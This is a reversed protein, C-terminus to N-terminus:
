GDRVVLGKVLAARELADCAPAVADETVWFGAGTRLGGGGLITRSAYAEAEVSYTVGAADLVAEVRGAEELTAALYVRTLETGEGFLHMAQRAM